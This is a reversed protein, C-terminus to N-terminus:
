VATSDSYGGNSVDSSVIATEGFGLHKIFYDRELEWREGGARSYVREGAGYCSSVIEGDDPDSQKQAKTNREDRFSQGHQHHVGHARTNVERFLPKTEM